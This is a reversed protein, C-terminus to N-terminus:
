TYVITKYFKSSKFKTSLLNVVFVAFNVDRSFKFTYPLGQKRMCTHTCTINNVLLKRIEAKLVKRLQSRSILMNDQVLQGASTVSSSQQSTCLSDKEMYGGDNDTSTDHESHQLTATTAPDHQDNHSGTMMTHDPQKQELQKM